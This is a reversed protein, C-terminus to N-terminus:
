PGHRRQTAETCVLPLHRQCWFNCSLQGIKLPKKSPKGQNELSKADFHGSFFPSNKIPWKAKNVKLSTSVWCSVRCVKSSLQLTSDHASIACLGSGCTTLHSVAHYTNQVLVTPGHQQAATVICAPEEMRLGTRRLLVASPPHVRISVSKNLVVPAPRSAQPALSAIGVHQFPRTDQDLEKLTSLHIPQSGPTAQVRTHNRAVSASLNFGQPIEMQHVGFPTRDNLGANIRYGRHRTWAGRVGRGRHRLRRSDRCAPILADLVPQRASPALCRLNASSKADIM